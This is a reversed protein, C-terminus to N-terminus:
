GHSPEFAELVGVETTAASQGPLYPQLALEPPKHLTQSLCM